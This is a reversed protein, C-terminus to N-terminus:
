VHSIRDIDTGSESRLIMSKFGLTTMPHSRLPRPLATYIEGIRHISIITASPHLQHILFSWMNNVFRKILLYLKNRRCKSDPRKVKKTWNFSASTTNHLMWAWVRLPRVTEIKTWRTSQPCWVTIFGVIFPWELQEM